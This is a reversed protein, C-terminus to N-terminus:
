YEASFTADRAAAAGRERARGRREAVDVEAVEQGVVGRVLLQEVDEAQERRNRDQELALTAVGERRGVQAALHHAAPQGRHEHGVRAVRGALDDAALLQSAPDRDRALEVAREDEVLEIRV